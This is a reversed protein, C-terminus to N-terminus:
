KKVALFAVLGAILLGLASLFLALYLGVQAWESSALFVHMIM